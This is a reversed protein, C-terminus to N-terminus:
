LNQPKFTEGTKILTLTIHTATQVFTYDQNQEVKHVTDGAFVITRPATSGDSNKRTGQWTGELSVPESNASGTSACGVVLALLSFALLVASMRVIFLRKNKM